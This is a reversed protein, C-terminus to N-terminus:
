RFPQTISVKNENKYYHVITLERIFYFCRETENVEEIGGIFLLGAFLLKRNINKCDM